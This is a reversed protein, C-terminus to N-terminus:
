NVVESLVSANSLWATDPIYNRNMGLNGSWANLGSLWVLCVQGGVIEEFAAAQRVKSAPIGRLQDSPSRQPDNM